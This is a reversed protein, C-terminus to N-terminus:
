RRAKARLPMYIALLVMAVIIGIIFAIWDIGKTGSNGTIATYIWSGALSGLIGIIITEIISINQDGKLLMRALAGIILGAIVTVIITWLM